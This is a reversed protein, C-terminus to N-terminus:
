AYPDWGLSWIFAGMIIGGLSGFVVEFFPSSLFVYRYIFILPALTMVGIGFYKVPHFKLIYKYTEVINTWDM